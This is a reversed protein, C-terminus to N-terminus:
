ILQDTASLTPHTQQALSGKFPLQTLKSRLNYEQQWHRATEGSSIEALLEAESKNMQARLIQQVQRNEIEIAGFYQVIDGHQILLTPFDEVDFDEVLDAYDEVDIWIFCKDPHESALVEFKPRYDDCVHCWAACLCAVIWSKDTLAQGLQEPDDLELTLKNM